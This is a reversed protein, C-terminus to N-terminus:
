CMQLFLKLRLMLYLYFINNPFVPYYALYFAIKNQEKRTNERDLLIDRSFGRAMLIQKRVM